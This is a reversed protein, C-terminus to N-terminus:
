DSSLLLDLSGLFLLEVRLIYDPCRLFDLFLRFFHWIITDLRIKLYDRLLVDARLVDEKAKGVTVGRRIVAVGHEHLDPQRIRLELVNLKIDFTLRNDHLAGVEVKVLNKGEWHVLGLTLCLEIAVLM